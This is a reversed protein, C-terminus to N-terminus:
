AIIDRLEGICVSDTGCCGGIYTAYELAPQMLVAFERATYSKKLGTTCMNNPKYFLPISTLEAFRKLVPLSHLPGYSCNLGMADLELPELLRVVDEVSHGGYTVGDKTFSLSALVPLQFRKAEIIAIRLMDVDGFTMLEIVDAGNAVGEAMIRHYLSATDPLSMRANVPGLSLAVRVDDAGFETVAECALSVALSIEQELNPVHEFTLPFTNTQVIKAGAEIYGKTIAKVWEPHLSNRRWVSMNKGAMKQLCSGMAGDLLVHKMETM